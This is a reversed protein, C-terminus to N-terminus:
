LCACFETPKADDIVCLFAIFDLAVYVFVFSSFGYVVFSLQRDYVGLCFAVVFNLNLRVTCGCGSFIRHYSLLASLTACCDTNM